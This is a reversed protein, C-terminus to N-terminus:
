LLTLKNQADLNMMHISRWLQTGGNFNLGEVHLTKNTTAM